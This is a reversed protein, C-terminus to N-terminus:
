QGKELKSQLVSLYGKWYTQNTELKTLPEIIEIAEKIKGQKELASIQYYIFQQKDQDNTAKKYFFKSFVEQAVFLSDVNLKRLLSPILNLDTHFANKSANEYFTIAKDVSEQKTITFLTDTIIEKPESVTKVVLPDYILTSKAPIGRSEKDGYALQYPIIAVVRDGQYLHEHLESFGDILPTKGHIFTFSSDKATSTTWFVKSDDNLYLNTFISVKSGEEIKPGLGEKLLIYQLGSDTKITDGVAINRTSKKVEKNCSSFTIALILLISLKKMTM